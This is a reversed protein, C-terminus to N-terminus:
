LPQLMLISTIKFVFHYPQNLISGLVRLYAQIALDCQLHPYLHTYVRPVKVLNWRAPLKVVASHWNGRRLGTLWTVTSSAGPIARACPGENTNRRGSRRWARKSRQQTQPGEPWCWRQPGRSSRVVLRSVINASLSLNVPMTERAFCRYSLAVWKM